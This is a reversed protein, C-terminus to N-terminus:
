GQLRHLIADLRNGRERIAAVEARFDDGTAGGRARITEMADLVGQLEASLAEYSAQGTRAGDLVRAVIGLVDRVVPADAGLVPELLKLVAFVRGATDLIASLNM